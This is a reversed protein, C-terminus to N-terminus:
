LGPARNVNLPVRYEDLGNLEDAVEAPTIGPPRDQGHWWDGDFEENEVSGSLGGSITPYNKQYWEVLLDGYYWDSASFGPDHQQRVVYLPLNVLQYDRKTDELLTTLQELADCASLTGAGFDNMISQRQLEISNRNNIVEFIMEDLEDALQEKLKEAEVASSGNLGDNILSAAVRTALDIVVSRGDGKALAVISVSDDGLLVSDLIIGDEWESKLFQELKDIALETRTEISSRYSNYRSSYEALYSVLTQSANNVRQRTNEDSCSEVDVLITEDEVVPPDPNNPDSALSASGNTTRRIDVEIWAGSFRAAFRRRVFVGGSETDLWVAASDDPTPVTYHIEGNRETAVRIGRVTLTDGTPVSGVQSEVSAPLDRDGFSVLHAFRHDADVDRSSIEPDELVFDISGLLLRRGNDFPLFFHSRQFNQESFSSTGNVVWRNASQSLSLGEPLTEAEMRPVAHDTVSVEVSEGKTVLAVDSVIISSSELPFDGTTENRIMIRVSRAGNAATAEFEIWDLKNPHLLNRTLFVEDNSVVVRGTSPILLESGKEVRIFRTERIGTANFPLRAVKVLDHGISEGTTVM